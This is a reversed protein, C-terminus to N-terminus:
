RYFPILLLLVDRTSHTPSNIPRQLGEARGESQVPLSLVTRRRQYGHHAATPAQAPLTSLRTGISPGKVRENIQQSLESIQTHGRIGGESGSYRQIWRSVERDM